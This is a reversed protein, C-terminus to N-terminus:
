INVMGTIWFSYLIDQVGCLQSNVLTVKINYYKNLEALSPPNYARLYDPLICNALASSDLVV